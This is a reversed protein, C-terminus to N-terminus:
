TAGTPTSASRCSACRECPNRPIRRDEVAAGLVQRLLGFANEISPVGLGEARMAAVWARVAAMRVDGVRCSGM